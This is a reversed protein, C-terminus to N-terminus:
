CCPHRAVTIAPVAEKFLELRWGLERGLTTIGTVNLRFLLAKLM